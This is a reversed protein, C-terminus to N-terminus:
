GFTSDCNAVLADPQLTDFKSGNVASPQLPFVSAVTVCEVDVFDKHLDVALLMIEPTSNILVTFHHIHIELGTSISALVMKIITRFIPTSM